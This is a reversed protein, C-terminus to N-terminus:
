NIQSDKQSWWDQEKQWLQWKLAAERQQRRLEQMKAEFDDNWSNQTTREAARAALKKRFADNRLRQLDEYTLESWSKIQEKGKEAWEAWM